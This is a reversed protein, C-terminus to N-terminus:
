GKLWDEVTNYLLLECSTIYLVYASSVGRVPTDEGTGAIHHMKIWSTPCNSIFQFWVSNLTKQQQKTQKTTTIKSYPEDTRDM